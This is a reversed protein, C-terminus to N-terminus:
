RVGLLREISFTIKLAAIDHDPNVMNTGTKIASVFHEIELKLPNDKYVFVREIHADQRYKVQDKGVHVSSSSQRHIHLDQTTFDLYVYENQQHVAMSRQKIQAARSSTISAIVGNKFHLLVTALDCSTTHIKQGLAHIDAVPSDVLSLVIDLDHIMLDLVVSDDKVRPSFPGVRHSEILYPKDIVKKLEQVAGNFREVHGVHLTCKKQQALVFLEEAQEITSTIPKEILVHKGRSLCDKAISFHYATPVAIIVGDVGDIWDAYDKSKIVDLALVKKWSESNPDSVGVLQVHPLTGCISAHFGGMHGLGIVGLKVM